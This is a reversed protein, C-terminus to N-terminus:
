ISRRRFALVANLGGFAFSNSLAARAECPRAVNAVYDLDCGEGPASFNITPPLLGRDLALATAATELAGAAGLAHGHMSKTSSVALARARDGFVEHLAATETADNALTGTGHANIYDVDDVNLGGSAMALRMARAAGAPSPQTIHHADSSMGFGALECYIHAGRSLAHDLPELVVMGAGEGLVLGDRDRSFPRCITPSVVRLAEWARLVGQTFPADAGGALALEAHGCRVQEFAQGIAHNSSSCATSVTWAPGTIGFQMSIRSTLANMMAKPISMPNFRSHKQGYLQFYGEDESYKGGLSSGTVIATQQRLEDTWAIGADAIAEMCAVIGMQAFRDLFGAEKAGLSQLPDFGRAEAGNSFKFAGASYGTLPGVGTVGHSLANWFATRNLGLSSVTGLGTIAVRRPLAASM